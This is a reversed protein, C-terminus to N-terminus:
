NGGKGGERSGYKKGNMVRRVDFQAEHCYDFAVLRNADGDEQKRNEAHRGFRATASEVTAIRESGIIWRWGAVIWDGPHALPKVRSKAARM